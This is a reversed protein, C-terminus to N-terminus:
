GKLRAFEYFQHGTPTTIERIFKFQLWRLWRHHERNAKYTYNYFGEYGTTEFLEALMPRSMSLFRWGHKEIAPTGLLWILGFDPFETSPVIGMICLPDYSDPTLGTYCVSSNEYGHILADLPSFGLAGVEEKDHQRMFRAVFEVDDKTTLRTLEM